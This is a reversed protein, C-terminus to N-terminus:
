SWIGRTLEFRAPGFRPLLVSVVDLRTECRRLPPRARRQWQGLLRSMRALKAPTIADLPYGCALSSRTKVEVAVLLGSEFAILDLEGGLGRWNRALIQYGREAVYAAALTEGQRGLLDKAAM